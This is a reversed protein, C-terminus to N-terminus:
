DEAAFVPCSVPEPYRFCRNCSICRAKATDGGRWRGILGPECILPRCLSIGTIKGKNLWADIVSPTRYGCVSVVDSAIDGALALAADAFGAEDDEDAKTRVPSSRGGTKVNIGGSVEVADIGRRALEGCVWRSEALTLGGDVLDESNIKIWIPYGAGVRARVADYVEFVIRARNAIAGGYGDTRRNYYPSLFQSLLYGHAGHIQVGDAGGRRCREAAAAFDEVVGAIDAETMAAAGPRGDGTATASPGLIPSAHLGAAKVGCHSLQVVLTSGLEHVRDAVARLEAAFGDGYAKVMTDLLLAGDSIGMMGTIIVGVEGRALKEYIAGLGAVAGGAVGELTASRVLRNRSRIGGLVVPEFLSKM